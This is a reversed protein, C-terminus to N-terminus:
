RRAGVPRTAVLRLGTGATASTTATGAAVAAAAAATAAAAAGVWEGRGRRSGGLLREHIPPSVEFRGFAEAADSYLLAGGLLSHAGSERGVQGGCASRECGPVAAPHRHGGVESAGVRGDGGEEVRPAHTPHELADGVPPPSPPVGVNPM